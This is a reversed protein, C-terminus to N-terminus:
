LEASATLYASTTSAFSGAGTTGTWSSGLTICQESTSRVSPQNCTVVTWTGVVTVVPAVRKYVMGITTSFNHGSTGGGVYYIDAATTGGIKEFYRQCLQLETGYPRYDFATSVSGKELQVGTIQWTAGNTAPLYVSGPIISNVGLLWTNGTSIQDTGAGLTFELYFGGENNTNWTGITSGPITITKYEWTNASIVTYSTTYVYASSSLNISYIGTVSAKVWFSVTIASANATGFNLDAINYGEVWQYIQHRASAPQSEQTTITAKLSKTFGAPADSVQQVSWRGSGTDIDSKWRDLGYLVSTSQAYSSGANRQDIVMAGNIIRNKFGFPSGSSNNISDIATQIAM